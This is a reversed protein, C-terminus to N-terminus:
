PRNCTAPAVAFGPSAARESPELAATFFRIAAQDVWTPGRPTELFGCHGGWPLAVVRLHGPLQAFSHVPIIPDDQALIITAHTGELVSGTLTYRSVYDATDKYETHRRVFLDTLASVSRLRYAETFDYRDPFAAQKTRLARHWKRIFYWRYGVWGSDIARMTVAPDIAPCIALTTLDLARAVRLAFNGGLSFGMVGGRGDGQERCLQGVADVVERTRASHFLEENLHATDGHDRLNLRAVTFGARWLHTAASLLYNSDANGLWGHILVVVPAPRPQPSVWAQLIVPASSGDSCSLRLERTVGLMDAAQELVTRRRSLSSMLTQLHPNQLSLPPRFDALM